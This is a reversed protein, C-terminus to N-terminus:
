IPKKAFRGNADRGNRWVLELDRAKWFFRNSLRINGMRNTDTVLSLKNIEGAMEGAWWPGDNNYDEPTATPLVRVVDGVRIIYQQQQQPRFLRFVPPAPPVAVPPPDIFGAPLVPAKPMVPMIKQKGLEMYWGILKKDAHQNKEVENTKIFGIETLAEAAAVQDSNTTAFVLAINGYRTLLTLQNHLWDSIVQKTIPVIPRYRGEATATQGFGTLIKATCCGPFDVIHM